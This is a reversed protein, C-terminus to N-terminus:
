HNPRIFPIPKISDGGAPVMKIGALEFVMDLAYVVEQRTLPTENRFQITANPVLPLGTPRALKRGVLEAYIQMVQQADTNPFNITGAPLLESQGTDPTPTLDASHPKVTAAMAKPVIMIFKAGDPIIALGKKVLADQLIQAAAAQDAAPANLTFSLKPLVQWRLLSRSSCQSYLRLAPELSADQLVIRLSSGAQPTGANTLGLTIPGSAPLKLKVTANDPDIQLLEIEGERQGEALISWTSGFSGMPFELLARRVDPLSIIGSLRPSVPPTQANLGSELLGLLLCSALITKM